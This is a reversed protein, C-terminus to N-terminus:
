ESRSSVINEGDIQRYFLKPDFFEAIEQDLVTMEDCKIWFSPLVANEFSFVAFKKITAELM